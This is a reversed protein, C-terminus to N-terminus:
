ATLVGLAQTVRATPVDYPARRQLVFADEDIALTNSEASTLAAGITRAAGSREAAAVLRAVADPFLQAGNPVALDYTADDTEGERLVDAYSQGAITEATIRQPPSGIAIRTRVAVRPGRTPFTEVDPLAAPLAAVRPPPAALAARVAPVIDREIWARYRPVNFLYEQCAGSAWPAIMAIGLRALALADSPSDNDVPIVIRARTLAAAGEGLPVFTAVGEAGALTDNTVVIIPLGFGAVAHVVLAAARVHEDGCWIVIADPQASRVITAPVTRSPEPTVLETPLDHLSVPDVAASAHYMRTIDVPIAVTEALAALAVYGRARALDAPLYRLREGREDRIPAARGLQAFARDREGPPLMWAAAAARQFGVLRVDSIGLRLVFRGGAM